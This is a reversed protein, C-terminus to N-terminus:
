CSGLGGQVCLTVEVQTYDMTRQHLRKVHVCVRKCLTATNLMQKEKRVKIDASVERKLFEVQQDTARAQRTM